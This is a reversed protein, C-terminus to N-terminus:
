NVFNPALIERDGSLDVSAYLTNLRDGLNIDIYM